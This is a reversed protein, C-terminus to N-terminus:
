VGAVSADFINENSTVIWQTALAVNTAVGVANGVIDALAFIKFNLGTGLDSSDLAHNSRGTTTSGAVPNFDLTAGVAAATLTSGIGDEEVQFLVDSTMMCVYVTGATLAPLYGPHETAAVARNVKVGVVAGLIVTNNAAIGPAINGDAERIVVDGIFVATANGSDV